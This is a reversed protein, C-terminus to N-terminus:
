DIPKISKSLRELEGQPVDGLLAFTREGVHWSYVALNAGGALNRLRQPNIDAGIQYFSVRGRDGFYVQMMARVNGMEIPRVSELEYGMDEPIRMAPLGTRRALRKIQDQLTVTLAGKRKIEFDEPSINPRYNIRKFEFSGIKSGALDFLERKLLMGNEPDIWLRQFDWRRPSM